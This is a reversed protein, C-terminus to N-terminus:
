IASGLLRVLKVSFVTEVIDALRRNIGTVYSGTFHEM